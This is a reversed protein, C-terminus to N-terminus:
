KNASSLPSPLDFVSKWAAADNRIDVCSSVNMFSDMFATPDDCKTVLGKKWESGSRMELIVPQGM